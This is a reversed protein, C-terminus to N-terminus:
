NTPKVVPLPYHALLDIESLRASKLRRLFERTDDGYARRSIGFLLVGWNGRKDKLPSYRYANWEVISDDKTSQGSLIFDLIMEGNNPNKLIAFNVTPDTSKRRNLTDVQASVAGGVDIGQAVAEILVM